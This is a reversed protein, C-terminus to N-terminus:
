FAHPSRFPHLAGHKAAVVNYGDFLFNNPFQGRVRLHLTKFGGYPPLKMYLGRNVGAIGGGRVRRLVRVVDTRSAYSRYIYRTGSAATGDLVYVARPDGVNITGVNQLLGSRGTSGSISRRMVGTHPRGKWRARSRSPPAKIRAAEKVEATVGVMWRRVIGDADFLTGPHIEIATIVERAM